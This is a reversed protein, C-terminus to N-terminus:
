LRSGSHRNRCSSRPKISVYAGGYRNMGDINQSNGNLNTGLKANKLLNNDLDIDGSIVKIAPGAGGQTIKLGPEADNVEVERPWGQADLGQVVTFEEGALRLSM